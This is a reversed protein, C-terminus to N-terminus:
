AAAKIVLTARFTHKGHTARFRYSGARGPNTLKAARTFLLRVSGPGLMSCLVGRPPPVTVTVKQAKVTAGVVKDALRVTGPAFQKPPKLASPFTVVLPGAGPYGCQMQYRLTVVLRVRHAGAARSSAVVTMSPVSM